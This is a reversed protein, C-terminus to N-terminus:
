DFFTIHESTIKIGDWNDDLTSLAIKYKFECNKGKRDKCEQEHIPTFEGPRARLLEKSSNDKPTFELGWYCSRYTGIFKM